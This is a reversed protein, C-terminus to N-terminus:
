RAPSKWDGMWWGGPALENTIIWWLVLLQRIRRILGWLNNVCCRICLLFGCLSSFRLVWKDKCDTLDRQLQKQKLAPLFPQYELGVYSVISPPTGTGLVALCDNMGPTSGVSRTTGVHWWQPPRLGELLSRLSLGWLFITPQWSLHELHRPHGHSSVVPLGLWAAGPVDGKHQLVSTWTHHVEMSFSWVAATPFPRPDSFICFLYWCHNMEEHSLHVM